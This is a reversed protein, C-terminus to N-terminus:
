DVDVCVLAFEQNVVTERVYRNRPSLVVCLYVRIVSAFERAVETSIIRLAGCGLRGLLLWRNRRYFLSRCPTPTRSFFFLAVTQPYPEGSIFRM